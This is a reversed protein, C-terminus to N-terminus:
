TVNPIGYFRETNRNIANHFVDWPEGRLEALFGATVRSWKPENPWERRHPEPALFPADTEVMIRELPALKVADQISKANRYTVIGTISVMAGLDLLARMDDPSGTFCHFVFRAPDIGSGKLLPILEGFAERCHLVVPKNIEGAGAILELQTHLAKLQIDKPPEDYHNDLGLEGWAVCRPSAAVKRIVDWDHPGEHSHLPHVGSTCWVAKRENAMALCRVASESTTSVTIAGTVGVAEAGALIEDVRGRFNDFTLHCHTDIM